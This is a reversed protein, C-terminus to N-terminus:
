CDVNFSQNLTQPSSDWCLMGQFLTAIQISHWMVKWAKRSCERHPKFSFKNDLFVGLYKCSNLVNLNENNLHFNSSSASKGLTLNLQCTKKINLTVKNNRLWDSVALLDAQLEEIKCNTGLLCTDDAFLFAQCKICALPLDNIFELFLLPRLISGQPVGFEIKRWDSISNEKGVRQKCDTLFPEIWKLSKGRIGYRDFKHLLIDHDFTDFAKAIDLLFVILEMKLKSDRVVEVLKAIADITSLKKRFTFQNENIYSHEGLNNLIRNFVVREFIKSWVILLSNPRYINVDEKWGNKHLPPVKALKLSSPFIGDKLFKNILFDLHECYLQVLM